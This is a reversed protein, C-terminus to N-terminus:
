PGDPTMFAERLGRLAAEDLGLGRSFWGDITGYRRAVEDFAAELYEARVGLVPTLLAADGGMAAFQEIRPRYKALVREHSALYDAFVAERPVGLLSQLAACAWGTRDKGTTCHVLAPRGSGEILGEYFRRYGSRASELTVFSRYSAVFMAEARGDGLLAQAPRPDSLLALLRAPMADPDDGVIDIVIREAGPLDPAPQCSREFSTRLDYVRRLGLAQLAALDAPTGVTPHESRYLLGRRMIAGSPTSHGGADRLNPMSAVVPTM